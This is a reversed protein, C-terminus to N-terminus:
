ILYLAGDPIAGVLEAGSPVVEGNGPYIAVLNKGNKVIDELFLLAKDRNMIAYPLLSVLSSYEDNVNHTLHHFLEEGKLTTIDKVGNNM